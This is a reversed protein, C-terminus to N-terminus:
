ALQHESALTDCYAFFADMEFCKDFVATAGLNLASSRAPERTYNSFVIVTQEPSRQTCQRLVDFGHGQRLFIDIVAVDWGRPNAQLWGAADRATDKVAVLEFATGLSEMLEKQLVPHDEVLLLRPKM